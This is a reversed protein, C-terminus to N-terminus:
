PHHSSEPAGCLRMVCIGVPAMKPGCETMDLSFTYLCFLWSVIRFSLRTVLDSDGTNM